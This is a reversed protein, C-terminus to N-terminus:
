LNATELVLTQSRGLHDRQDLSVRAALGQVSSADGPVHQPAIADAVLIMHDAM